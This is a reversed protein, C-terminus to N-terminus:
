PEGEGKGQSDKSGARSRPKRLGGLLSSWSGSSSKKVHGKAEGEGEQGAAAPSSSSSSLSLGRSKRVEQGSGQSHADSGASSPSRKLSRAFFGRLGSTASSPRPAPSTGQGSSGNDSGQTPDQGSASLRM